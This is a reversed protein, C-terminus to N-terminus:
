GICEWLCQDHCIWSKEGPGMGTWQYTYEFSICNQNHIWFGQCCRNTQHYRSQGGRTSGQGNPPPQLTCFWYRHHSFFRLLPHLSTIRGLRICSLSSFRLFSHTFYCHSALLYYYIVCLMMNYLEGDLSRFEVAKNALADKVVPSSSSLANTAKGVNRVAAIIKASSSSSSSSTLLRDLIRKGTQGTAGAVVVTGSAADDAAAFASFIPYSFLTSSASIAVASSLLSRRSLTSTMMRDDDSDTDTVDDSNAAALLVSSSSESFAATRCHFASLPTTSFAYTTTASQGGFVAVLTASLLVSASAAIM